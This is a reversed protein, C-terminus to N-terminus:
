KKTYLTCHCTHKTRYSLCPCKTDEKEVDKQFCPCYGDSKDIRKLVANYIKENPNIQTDDFLLKKM